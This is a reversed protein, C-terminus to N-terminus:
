VITTECKLFDASARAESSENRLRDIGFRVPAGSSMAVAVLVVMAVALLKM